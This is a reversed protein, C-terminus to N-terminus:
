IVFGHIYAHNWRSGHREDCIHVTNIGRLGRPCVLGCAVIVHISGNAGSDTFLEIM